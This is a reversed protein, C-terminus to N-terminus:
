EEYVDTFSAFDRYREMAISKMIEEHNGKDKRNRVGNNGVNWFARISKM